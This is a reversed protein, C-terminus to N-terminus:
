LIIVKIPSDELAQAFEKADDMTGVLSGCHMPIAVTPGIKLAAAAAEKPTMVYTGSVPLLAIDCSINDMEPILDSDGAHYLSVGNIEVIFGLWGNKKPHFKKNTNYSAVTRVKFPGVETEGNPSLITINGSLKKASDKETIITTSDQHIKAVDEPSCHDYHEHSILIIDAKPLNDPLKYPDFYVNKDATQLLFSDHGLWRLNNLTDELM